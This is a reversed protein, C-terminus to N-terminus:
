ALDNDDLIYRKHPQTGRTHNRTAQSFMSKANDDLQMDGDFLSLAAYLEPTTFHDMTVTLIKDTVNVQSIRLAPISAPTVNQHDSFRLMEQLRNQTFFCRTHRIICYYYMWVMFTIRTCPAPPMHTALLNRLLHTKAHSGADLGACLVAGGGNARVGKSSRGFLRGVESAMRGFAFTRGGAKRAEGPLRGVERTIRCSRGCTRWARVTEGLGNQNYPQSRTAREPPRRGGTVGRGTERTPTADTRRAQTGAPRLLM